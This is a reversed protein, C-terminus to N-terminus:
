LQINARRGQWYLETPAAIVGFQLATTPIIFLCEQSLLGIISVNIVNNITYVTLWVRIKQDEVKCFRAM